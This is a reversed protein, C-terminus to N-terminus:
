SFTRGSTPGDVPPHTIRSSASDIVPAASRIAAQVTPGAVEGGVLDADGAAEAGRVARGSGVAAGEATETGDVAGLGAAAEGPVIPRRRTGNKSRTISTLITPSGPM